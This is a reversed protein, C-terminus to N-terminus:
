GRRVDLCMEVRGLSRHQDVPCASQPDEHAITIAAPWDEANVGQEDISFLSM